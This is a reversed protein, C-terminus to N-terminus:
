ENEFEVVHLDVYPLFKSFEEIDHYGNSDVLVDSGSLARMVRIM